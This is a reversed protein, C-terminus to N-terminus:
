SAKLTFGVFVIKPLSYLRTQPVDLSTRSNEREMSGRQHLWIHLFRFGIPVMRTRHGGGWSSRSHLTGSQPTVNLSTTPQPPQATTSCLM